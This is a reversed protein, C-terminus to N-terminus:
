YTLRLAQIFGAPGNPASGVDLTSAGARFVKFYITKNSAVTIIGVVDLDQRDLAAGVSQAAGGGFAVGDNANWFQAWITDNVDSTRAGVSGALLWTGATLDVTPAGVANFVVDGGLAGALTVNIAGALNSALSLGLVKLNARATAVDAVDSLNSARQCSAAIAASQAAAAAAAATGAADFDGTAALAATGLEMVQRAQAATLAEVSGNGATLRGLMVATAVAQFKSFTVAGPAITLAQFIANLDTHTYATPSAQFTPLTALDGM